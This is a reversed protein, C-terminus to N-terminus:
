SVVGVIVGCEQALNQRREGLWAEDDRQSTPNSWFSHGRKGSRLLVPGFGYSGWGLYNVVSHKGFAFGKRWLLFFATNILSLAETVVSTPSKIVNRLSRFTNRELQWM